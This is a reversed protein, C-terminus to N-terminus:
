AAGDQIRVCEPCWSTDTVEAPPIYDSSSFRKGCYSLLTGEIVAHIVGDDQDIGDLFDVPKTATSM